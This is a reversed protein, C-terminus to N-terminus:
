LWFSFCIPGIANTSHLHQTMQQLIGRRELINLNSIYARMNYCPNNPQETFHVSIKKTSWELSDFCRNSIREPPLMSSQNACKVAPSTSTWFRYMTIQINSISLHNNYWLKSKKSCYYSKYWLPISISIINNWCHIYLVWTTGHCIRNLLIYQFITVPYKSKLPMGSHFTGTAWICTSDQM